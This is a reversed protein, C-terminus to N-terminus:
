TTAIESASINHDVLAGLLNASVFLPVICDMMRPERLVECIRKASIVATKAMETITSKLTEM